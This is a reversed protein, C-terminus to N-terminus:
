LSSSTLIYAILQKDNIKCNGSYSVATCYKDTICVAMKLDLILHFRMFCSNLRCYVAYKSTFHVMFVSCICEYVHMCCFHVAYLSLMIVLVKYDILLQKMSQLQQM